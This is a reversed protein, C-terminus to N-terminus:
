DEIIGEHTISVIRVYKNNLESNLILLRTQLTQPNLFSSSSLVCEEFLKFVFMFLSFDYYFQPDSPFSFIFYRGGGKGWDTDLSLNSGFREKADNSKGHM